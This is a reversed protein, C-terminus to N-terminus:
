KVYKPAEINFMYINVQIIDQKQIYGKIMIYHGERDTVIAKTNFDIKNSILIVVGAKKGKGHFTKKLGKVNLSHTDKLRLHTEQFCCICQDQKRIM